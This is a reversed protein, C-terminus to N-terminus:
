KLQVPNTMKAKSGDSLTILVTYCGKGTITPATSATTTDWNFQFPPVYRFNSGGTAGTAPSFLTEYTGVTSAVCGGGAPGTFVSELKVLTSLSSVINGQPDTLSWIIPVASGLTAPSKLPTLTFTYVVKFTRTAPDGVNGANDTARVSFTHPGITLGTLAKPSTCASFSAGDLKCETSAVGSGPAPDM